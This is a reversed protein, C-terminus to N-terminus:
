RDVMGESAAYASVPVRVSRLERELEAVRRYEAETGVKGLYRVRDFTDAADSLGSALAPFAGSASSAFGHATTGPTTALITREALGRAIARFSEEIARSWDGRAAAAAADRRLAEASRGDDEGFLEGAVSSRRNLAPMGFIVFAAVLAAVVIVVIIALLLPSPGAPTGSFLSEFWEFIAASVRDFWTPKAAEYRPDSLENLVWDRAEDADPDVPVEAWLSAVGTM